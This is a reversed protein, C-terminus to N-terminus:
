LCGCGSISRNTPMNMRTGKALVERHQDHSEIYSDIYDREKTQQPQQLQQQQQEVSVPFLAGRRLHCRSQEVNTGEEVGAQTPEIKM